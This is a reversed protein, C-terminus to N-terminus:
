FVGRERLSTYGEATVILHDYLEIGITEGARRVSRTFELDEESPELCGSPHNHVLLFGMALHVLAPHLIERPHTRTTNLSGVSLTERVLLGNQADLYLGVLHEKRARGLDRVRLYADRPRTIRPREDPLRGGWMRRGLETAAALRRGAAPGLGPLAGSRTDALSRLGKLGKSRLLAAAARVARIPGGPLGAVVAVLEAHTLTGPGSHALRHYPHLTAPPETAITRELRTEDSFADGASPDEEWPLTEEIRHSRM